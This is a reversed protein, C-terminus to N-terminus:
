NLMAKKYYKLYGSIKKELLQQYQLQYIKSQLQTEEADAMLIKIRTKIEALAKTYNETLDSIVKKEDKLAAQLVEKDYSKM